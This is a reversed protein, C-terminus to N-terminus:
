MRQILTPLGSVLALAEITVDGLQRRCRRSDAAVVGLRSQMAIAQIELPLMNSTHSEAM